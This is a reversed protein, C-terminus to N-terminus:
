SSRVQDNKLREEKKLTKAAYNRGTDVKQVFRVEGFAGKGTVKVTVFDALGLGARKLRFFVGEKKGLVILQIRKREDSTM